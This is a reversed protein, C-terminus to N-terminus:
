RLMISLTLQDSSGDPVMGLVASGGHVSSFDLNILSESKPNDVLLVM